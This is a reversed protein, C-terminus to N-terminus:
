WFYLWYLIFKDKENLVVGRSYGHNLLNNIIPCHNYRQERYVISDKYEILYFEYNKLDKTYAFYGLMDSFMEIEELIDPIPYFKYNFSDRENNCYKKISTIYAISDNNYINITDVTDYQNINLYKRKQNDNRYKLFLQFGFYNIDNIFESPIYNFSVNKKPIKDPFHTFFTSYKSKCMNYLHIGYKDNKKSCSSLFCILCILILYKKM